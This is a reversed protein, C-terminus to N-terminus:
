GTFILQDTPVVQVGGVLGILEDRSDLIGNGNSDYFIGSGTVGNLQTVKQFYEAASGKLQLFDDEGFDQIFAYDATGSSKTKADDYFRGRADGLIFTDSGGSGVLTDITARGTHTGTEPVGSIIDRGTSGVVTESSITGFVRNPAVEPPMPEPAPALQLFTTVDLRGGSLTKTEISGTLTASSLLNAKISAASESSLSSYLAIAGTVHPAAMSTGSKLGYGGGLLTSYVSSGPAGIDVTSQGYNSFTSLAGSSTISAVAIVADYGALATTDYSSPYRSFADNDDGISDSGGNGAASVFLIDERAGRVIAELMSQSYDGGGWSNNTAAFDIKTSRQAQATFYDLAKLANSTLGTGSSSIFKLAVLQANWSVGAVGVGNGGTAAITGAVHTGHGTEDMPDNDGQAFDWGILDDVYGNADEDLGNEWRPDVLLDGGDIRGNANHDSVLSANQVNNLDRFSILGDSDSDVLLARVDAPIEDENLWVNLYLDPHTYDIGSDVVGIGVKMSGTYGSAWAEGAQSGFSNSPSTQDGYMGWLQGSGFATDNITSANYLTFNEEAYSVASHKSIAELARVIGISGELRVRVLVGEGSEGNRLVELVRGGIGNLAALQVDAGSGHAFKVLIEAPASKLRSALAHVSGM